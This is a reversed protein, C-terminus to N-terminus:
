IKKTSVLVNNILIFRGDSSILDVLEDDTNKVDNICEYAYMIKDNIKVLHDKTLLLGNLNIWENNSKNQKVIKIDDPLNYKLINSYAFCPVVPGANATFVIYLSNSQKINSMTGPLPPNSSSNIADITLNTFNNSNSTLADIFKWQQNTQWFSNMFNVSPYAFIINVTAGTDIFLSNTVNIADYVNGRNPYPPPNTESLNDNIEWNTISSSNLTLDTFTLTGVSNGAAVTGNVITTGCSGNGQLKGTTNITVTSSLISGNVILTGDNVTTSGSYTNTNTLLLTGSGSKLLSSSGSIVGSLTMLQSGVNMISPSSLSINNTLTVVGGGTTTINGNPLTSSIIVEKGTSIEITGISNFPRSFTVSPTSPNFSLTGSNNISSTNNITGSTIGDGLQLKGASITTTGTYLNPGTFILTGLGTKTINESNAPLSSSITITKENFVDLIGISNFTKSFTMFSTPPNFSLTGTNIVSLTNDITGSTVGDGLQLIGSSITTAGTYLNTGTFILTGSGAKIVNSSIAPLSSSITVTKSSSVNLTGISAVFPVTFTVSSSSPNFLLTGANTISSTNNITGNTTGDGLQLTGNSITTTGTYLNTGTLILTGSGTKTVNSAIAPLSSITVTRSSFVIFTGISTIFPVAFTISSSSSSPNFSLIGANNISTTNNITGSTTGNGLQLTGASITTTGSYTNAGTLTLTGTGAKILNQAGSIIGSILTTGNNVTITTPSTLAVNSSLSLTGSGQKIINEVGSILNSLTMTGNNVNITTPSSLTINSSVILTGSGTQVFNFSPLPSSLTVTKSSFVDFTGISTIFPVAFTISSSSSPNFSLIGTNNISTTSNITGSVIGNGLQLIGASITTTGSYTNAGILTLRGTGAKILNQAGSIIGSISTTGNNVTITTQSTLAVNSTLSLTGIGEKIINEVGSILNTLTITGGNVNITTPSSLTINSSVILTGSGNKVFNFSPLSSLITVTQTSFVVDLIGISTIFPVAFTTSSSIPNFALIGANNISTTNNITGNTSGNGLQLTGASITTTGSYTNGGTLILTGTGAKILDQAGSIVGSILTTGNNVTITTPSTLAVNSPLTLTGAGEKIINEVGSILNPLTMTGSNVNITTPSSLTINSSVSLTGSGTKVFNFLPLSSSITVTKSSFVNFTGISTIFPVTFTISSTLPNFALIGANNISTTSDITGNTSGNNGLQLTGASITTTGSYTNVGTLSLTGVGVKILDQAGSIVGSILTTGNNVTITTPSTLTINSPLTLTGVGEKVINEIETISNVNPLIITGENVTIPTLSSLIVNPFSLTGIGYKVINYQTINTTSNIVTGLCNMTISSMNGPILLSNINFTKQDSSLSRTDTTLLNGAPSSMTLTGSVLNISAVAPSTITGDIILTISNCIADSPLTITRSIASNIYITVNDNVTPVVNPYWNNSDNWNGDSNINWTVSIEASKFNNVISQSAITTTGRKLFRLTMGAPLYIGVSGSLPSPPPGSGSFDALWIPNNGLYLAFYDNSSGDTGSYTWDFTIIRNVNPLPTISITGDSATGTTANMTITSSDISVNTSTGTNSIIWNSPIFPGAFGTSFTLVNIQQYKFNNIIASSNVISDNWKFYRFLTNQKLYLSVSGSSPTVTSSDNKNTLYVLTADTYYGFPDFLRESSDNPTFNWDFTIIYDNPMTIQMYSARNDSLTAITGNFAIQTETTNITMGTGPLQTWNSIEFPGNFGSIM